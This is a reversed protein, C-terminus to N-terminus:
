RASAPRPSEVRPDEHVAVNWGPFTVREEHVAVHWGHFTVREDQFATAVDLVVDRGGAGGREM